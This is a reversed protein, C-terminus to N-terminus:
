ARDVGRSHRQAPARKYLAIEFQQKGKKKPVALVAAILKRITLAPRNSIEAFRRAM